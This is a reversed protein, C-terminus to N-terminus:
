WIQLLGEELPSTTRTRETGYFKDSARSSLRCKKMVGPIFITGGQKSGEEEKENTAKFTTFCTPGETTNQCNIVIKYPSVYEHLFLFAPEVVPFQAVNFSKFVKTNIQPVARPL